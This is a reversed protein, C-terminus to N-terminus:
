RACRAQWHRRCAFARGGSTKELEPRGCAKGGMQLMGLMSGAPLEWGLSNGLAARGSIANAPLHGV